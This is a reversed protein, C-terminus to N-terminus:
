TTAAPSAAPPVNKPGVTLATMGTRVVGSCRSAAFETEHDVPRSTWIRAADIAPPIMATDPTLAANATLAALKTTDAARM